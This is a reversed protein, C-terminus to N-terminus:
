GRWELADVDLFRICDIPLGLLCAHNFRVADDDILRAYVHDGGLFSAVTFADISELMPLEIAETGGGGHIGPIFGVVIDVDFPM